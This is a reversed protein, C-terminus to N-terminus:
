RGLFAGTLILYSDHMGKMLISNGRSLGKRLNLWEIEEMQRVDRVKEESVPLVNGIKSTWEVNPEKHNFM